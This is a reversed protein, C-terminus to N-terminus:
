SFIVEISGMGCELDFYPHADRSGGSSNSDLGGTGYGDITIAGLSVEASWGYDDPRPVTITIGGMSCNANLTEGVAGTFDIGGMNTTLSVTQGEFGTVEIGGMSVEFAATTATTDGLTIAGMDTICDLQELTFGSIDAEGMGINIDMGDLVDAPLTLTFTTTVNEGGLWFLNRGWGGDWRSSINDHRATIHWEGDDYNETYPLKGDVTLTPADGPVLKVYGASIDLTLKEVDEYIVVHEANTYSSTGFADHSSDSGHREQWRSAWKPASFLPVNNPGSHYVWQGDILSISGPMGGIAFGVIAIVLGALAIGGFVWLVIKKGM